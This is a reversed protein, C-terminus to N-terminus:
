LIPMVICYMEKVAKVTLSGNDAINLGVFTLTCRVTRNLGVKNKVVSDVIDETGFKNLSEEFHEKRELEHLQSKKKSRNKNKRKAQLDGSMKISKTSHTLDFRSVNKLCLVVNCFGFV